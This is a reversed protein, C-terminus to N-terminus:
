HKFVDVSLELVVDLTKVLHHFSGFFSSPRRLAVGLEVHALKLLVLEKLVENLHPVLLDLPEDVVLWCDLLVVEFALDLVGHELHTWNAFSALLDM